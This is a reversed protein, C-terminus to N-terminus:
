KAYTFDYSTKLSPYKASEAIAFSKNIEKQIKKEYNLIIKESLINNKLLKKRFNQLPCKNTWNKIEKKDRYLLHDDNSPGCHELHRYTNMIIIVPESKEKIFQLAMKTKNLVEIVDNGNARFTKVGLINELDKLNRDVRRQSIDTYVSYFNNEIVFLCKLKQIKSFNLSEYFVGQETAADGLYITVIDKKDKIKKELSLGVGIPITAGVIPLSLMFNVNKDILNMSGGRGSNCGNEKGYIELIMKNLSGGKSLYHAHSRHNSVVQDKKKLLASVGVAIAEQGISLQVPCRMKQDNYKKSIGEEIRRIRLIQYFLEKKINNNIKIM